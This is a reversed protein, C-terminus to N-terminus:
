TPPWLKAFARKWSVSHSDRNQAEWAGGHRLVFLRFLFVSHMLSTIPTLLFTFMTESLVNGMFILGGGFARRASRRLLVDIISAIKPAFIMSIMIIFLATGPGLRVPASPATPAGATALAITGMAVLAMWAPSGLYMLIAFVLQFRSVPRLGPLSLL